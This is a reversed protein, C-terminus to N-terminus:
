SGQAISDLCFCSMSFFIAKYNYCQPHPDSYAFWQTQMEISRQLNISSCMQGIDFKRLSTKEFIPRTRTGGTWQTPWHSLSSHLLKGCDLWSSDVGRWSPVFLTRSREFPCGLNSLLVMIGISVDWFDFILLVLWISCIRPPSAIPMSESGLLVLRASVDELSWLFLKLPCHRYRPVRFIKTDIGHAELVDDPPIVAVTIAIRQTQTRRGFLVFDCFPISFTEFHFVLLMYM